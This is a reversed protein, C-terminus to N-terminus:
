FKLCVPQSIKIEKGTATLLGTKKDRKFVTINDSDQNAVLLFRGTPDIVFNRPTKGNVSQHGVFTLKGTKKDIKFIALSEHARNSGYLFKGDPSIHIDASWKRGTYDTPLTSITQFPTLVGNKYGFGTITADIEQISYIFKGNPHIDLHRPGGGTKIPTFPPVGETLQGTQVNLRYAMIKDTGLDAAFVDTNNPAVMISHLHSVDQQPKVISSGELKTWQKSSGIRGDDEVPLLNFSGNFYNSVFLWKGTKDLELHTAGQGGVLSQTNLLTLFHTQKDIAFAHVSDGKKSGGSYLFRRDASIALFSPNDIGKTISLPVFDGTKTNFQYIYIGESTKRTYTGIYLTANNKQAISCVSIFCLCFIILLKHTNKMKINYNVIHNFLLDVGSGIIGFLMLM